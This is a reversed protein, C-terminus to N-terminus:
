RSGISPDIISCHEAGQGEWPTSVFVGSAPWSEPTKSKQGTFFTQGFPKEIAALFVRYTGPTNKKTVL